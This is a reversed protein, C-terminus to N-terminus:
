KSIGAFLLKRWTEVVEGWISHWTRELFHEIRPHLVVLLSVLFFDTWLVSLVRVLVVGVSLALVVSLLILLVTVRDANVEAYETIYRRRVLLAVVLVFAASLINLVGRMWWSFQYAPAFALTYAAVAHYYVGAINADSTPLHWVDGAVASSGIVVIKGAFSFTRNPDIVQPVILTSSKLIPYTAPNLYYESGSIVEGGGADESATRLTAAYPTALWGPLRKQGHKSLYAAALATAMSPITNGNVTLPGLMFMQGNLADKPRQAHVAQHIYKANGLWMEPDDALGRQVALFVPVGSQAFRYADETVLGTSDPWAIGQSGSPMDAPGLAGFDIDIGIGAPKDAAITKILSDLKTLDTVHTLPADFDDRIDVVVVQPNPDDVSLQGQLKEYAWLELKEGADTGSIVYHVGFAALVLVAGRLLDRRLHYLRRAVTDKDAHRTEPDAKALLAAAKPLFRRWHNLEARSTSSEDHVLFVQVPAGHKVGAEGLDLYTVDLDTAESLMERARGSLVIEGPHAVEAVRAATVVGDGAMNEHGHAGDLSIPGVHVGMRIQLAVEKARTRLELALRLPATMDGHFAIALADGVPATHVAKAVHATRYTAASEVEKKLADFAQAQVDAPLLAVRAIDVVLVSAIQPGTATPQTRRPM